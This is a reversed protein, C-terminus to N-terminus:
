SGGNHQGARQLYLLNNCQVQFLKLTYTNQLGSFRQIIGIGALPFAGNVLVETYIPTWLYNIINVTITRLCQPIM